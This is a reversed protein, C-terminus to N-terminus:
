GLERRDFQKFFPLLVIAKRIKMKDDSRFQIGVVDSSLNGILNKSKAVNGNFFRTAQKLINM